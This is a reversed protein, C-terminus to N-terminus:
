CLMLTIARNFKVPLPQSHSQNQKYKRLIFSDRIIISSHSIDSNVKLKNLTTVHVTTDLDLKMRESKPTGNPSKSIGNYLMCLM